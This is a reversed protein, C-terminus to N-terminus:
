EKLPRHQNIPGIRLAAWWCQATKRTRPEAVVAHQPARVNKRFLSKEAVFSDAIDLKARNPRAVTTATKSDAVAAVALLFADGFYEQQATRSMGLSSWM